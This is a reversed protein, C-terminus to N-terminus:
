AGEVAFKLFRKRWMIVRHAFEQTPNVLWAELWEQYCDYCYDCVTEEDMKDEMLQGVENWVYVRTDRDIVVREDEPYGELECSIAGSPRIKMDLVEHYNGTWMKLFLTHYQYNTLYNDMVVKKLFKVKAKDLM